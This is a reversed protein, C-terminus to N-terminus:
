IINTIEIRGADVLLVAPTVGAAVDTTSHTVTMSQLKALTNIGAAFLDFTFTGGSHDISTQPALMTVIGGSYEANIVCTSTALSKTLKFWGRYIAATVVVGAPIGNGISSTLTEGTSGAVATQIDANTGNNTSNANAPNTVGAGASASLWFNGQSTQADTPVVSSEALTLALKAADVQAAVTDNQALRIFYNALETPAPNTDNAAIRLSFADTPNPGGGGGGTASITVDGTGPDAGTWTLTVNTGAIVKRIVAGGVTSTNLDDRTIGDDKIQGSTYQTIAM